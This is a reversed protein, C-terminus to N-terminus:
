LSSKRRIGVLSEFVQDKIRRQTQQYVVQWPPLDHPTMRWLSGSRIVWDLLCTIKAEGTKERYTAWSFAALSLKILGADAAAIRVRKKRM